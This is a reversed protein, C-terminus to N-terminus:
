GGGTKRNTHSIGAKEGKTDKKPDGRGGKAQKNKKLKPPNRIGGRIVDNKNTPGVKQWGV